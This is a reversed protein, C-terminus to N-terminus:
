YSVTFSTLIIVFIKQLIFLIYYKSVLYFYRFWIISLNRASLFVSSEDVITFHIRRVTMVQTSKTNFTLM